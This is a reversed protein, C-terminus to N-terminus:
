DVSVVTVDGTDPYAVYGFWNQDAALGSWTATYSFPRATEVPVPDPAVVLNGADDGDAVVWSDYRMTATADSAAFANVYVDYTGAPVGLGTLEEDGSETASAGILTGEYYLWLDLDDGADADARFRVAGTGAPVEVTERYTDADATPAEPDFPGVALNRTVTSSGVLGSVALDLAGTFGARGEVEVSGAVGEGTVEEPVSLAIPRIAVPMRVVHGNDGTLVLKGTTYRGLRTDATTSFLVSMTRSGRAPVRVTASSPSVDLGSLGQTSVAYTEAAGSVNTLTRRVRQHGVLDGIAISAQNLNSADIPPAIPDGAGTTVGQGALFRLWDSARSDFVVGPDLFRRPRVHGAGQAFPGHNGVLNYATTMMASKIMM